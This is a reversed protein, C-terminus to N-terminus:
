AIMSCNMYALVGGWWFFDILWTCKSFPVYSRITDCRSFSNSSFPKSAGSSSCFLCESAVLWVVFSQFICVLKGGNCFVLDSDSDTGDIRLLFLGIGFFVCITSVVVVVVIITITLCDRVGVVFSGVNGVGVVCVKLFLSSKSRDVCGTLGTTFSVVGCLFSVKSSVCRVSVRGPIPSRLFLVMDLLSNSM